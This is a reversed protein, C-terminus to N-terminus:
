MAKETEQVHAALLANLETFVVPKVLHHNFGAEESRRRDTEQGYGSIAILLMSNNKSDSRIQKAVEYGNMGPLGIDLLIVDPSRKQAFQAAAPGDYVVSAEYGFARLLLALSDASDRNDDVVLVNLKTESPMSSQGRIVGEPSSSVDALPLSITFESGHGLGGSKASITGGHMKALSQSLTLGIGLGGQSRDLTQEAQVFPEFIHNLMESSIGVGTDRIVVVARDVKRATIAITGGNDTYKIANTLLNALIQEIRSSDGRIPIEANEISLTVNLKRENIMPRVGEIVNTLLRAFDLLESQLRIKGKTIRSIDLLGELLKNLYKTQRTIAESAWTITEKYTSVGLLTAANSISALPNRLEHALMALFDDKRKDAEKLAEEARKARTMDRFMKLYGTIEGAGDRLPMMYGSGWFRSGDKRVHWREDNGRGRVLADQMEAEPQESANDEPTFFIGCHKGLVESEDYGLLRQAGSNWSDINGELDTTIIAFETASEVISRFKEEAIRISNAARM